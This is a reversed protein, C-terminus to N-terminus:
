QHRHQVTSNPEKRNLFLEIPIGEIPLVADDCLRISPKLIIPMFIPLPSLSHPTPISQIPRKINQGNPVESIGKRGKIRSGCKSARLYRRRQDDENAMACRKVVCSLCSVGMGGRGM